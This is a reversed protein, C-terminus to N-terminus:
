RHFRRDRQIHVPKAPRMSIAYIVLVVVKLESRRERRMAAKQYSLLNSTNYFSATWLDCAKVVGGVLTGGYAPLGDDGRKPNPLISRWIRFHRRPAQPTLILFLFLLRARLM